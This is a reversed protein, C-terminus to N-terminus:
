RNAWTAIPWRCTSHALLQPFQAVAIPNYASCAPKTGTSAPRVVMRMRLWFVPATRTASIAVGFPSMGVSPLARTGPVLAKPTGTDSM